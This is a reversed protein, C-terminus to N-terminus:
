RRWSPTSGLLDALERDHDAFHESLRERIQAPMPASPRANAHEFTAPAWNPLGLAKVLRDWQLRPEAFYDDADIVHVREPGLLSFLREVQGAYEGRAVYAHHQHAFSQYAPDAMMRPVEGDLRSPELELAREFPQDEFGRKTEQKFASFARDVPDRLLVVVHVGPLDGAIRAAALPHFMYYPSAEGSVAAPGHRRVALARLPFHGRYWATGKSYHDATDFFHVGKHFLPPAVSPHRTLSRYISTTGCRQAGVVLFGPSMRLGASWRGGTAVAARGWAKLTDPAQSRMTM